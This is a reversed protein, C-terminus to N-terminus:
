RRKLTLRSQGFVAAKTSLAIQGTMENGEAGRVTGRAFFGQNPPCQCALELTGTPSLRGLMRFTQHAVTNAMWGTVAGDPGVHLSLRGQQHKEPDTWPGEWDGTFGPAAAARTPASPAPPGAVPPPSPPPTLAVRPPEVRPPEVSTPHASDPHAGAPPVYTPEVPAPRAAFPAPEVLAAQALRPKSPRAGGGTRKGTVATRDDDDDAERAARAAPKAVPKATPKAATPAPEDPTPVASVPPTATGQASTTKAADHAGGGRTAALAGGVLVVALVAAGILLPRRSRAPVEDVMVDPSSLESAAERFTTSSAGARPAPAPATAPPSSISEPLTTARALFTTLREAVVRMDAPRTAPDKRLLEGVLQALAAPVSPNFARPDPPAETMHAVVLIM